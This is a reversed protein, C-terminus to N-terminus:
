RTRPNTGAPLTQNLAARGAASPALVDTSGSSRQRQEQFSQFFFTRNKSIPGGATGAWWQETGPLPKGRAIVQPDMSQLLTTADDNTVDLLLSATGHFSNTGSRTIVNIVGGGSRGYESDYNSTQVNVEQVADPNNIKFGQGAVSIDNNETGDILFNNSRGRAGNVVFTSVGPGARNTSVGPATLALMAPNRAALPLADIQRVDVNAGRVAAEVQLAQATAEVQVVTKQEGVELRADVTRVQAAAVAFPETQFAKFGSASCRVVYDGLDVADFRYLGSNNATTTRVTGTALGHLEVQVAAVAAGSPDSVIGNVTGRSSQASAAAACM